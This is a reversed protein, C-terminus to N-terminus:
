GEKIWRKLLLYAALIVGQVKFDEPFHGKCEHGILLPKPACYFDCEKIHKVFFGTINYQKGDIEVRDSLGPHIQLIMNQNQFAGYSTKLIKKSTVRFEIDMEDSSLKFEIYKGYKATFRCSEGNSINLTVDARSLLPWKTKSSFELM